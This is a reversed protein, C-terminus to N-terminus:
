EEPQGVDLSQGLLESGDPFVVKQIRMLKSGDRAPWGYVTVPQGPKLSDSSWGRLRLINPSNTEAKWSETAGDATKADFFVVGHPNRFKFQTVVGEVAVIRDPEFHVAFSHHASARVSAMAMSVAMAAFGLAAMRWYKM